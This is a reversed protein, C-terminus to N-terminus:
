SILEKPFANKERMFYSLAFNRDATQRESLYVANNFHIESDGGMTSWTELVKDFRDAVDLEPFLMSSTMIAGANIMPNHPLGKENLALENFRKGSPERGVHKHVFSEGKNDLAICYNIPKCTSQVCFLKQSDGM